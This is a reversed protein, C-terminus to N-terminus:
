FYATRPENDMTKSDIDKQKTQKNLNLKKERNQENVKNAAVSLHTTGASYTRKSCVGKTEVEVENALL